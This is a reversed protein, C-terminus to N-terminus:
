VHPVRANTRERLGICRLNFFLSATKIHGNLQWSTSSSMYKLISAVKVLFVLHLFHFGATPLCWLCISHIDHCYTVRTIVAVWCLCKSTTISFHYLYHGAAKSSRISSSTKNWLQQDLDNQIMSHSREGGWISRGMCNDECCDFHM